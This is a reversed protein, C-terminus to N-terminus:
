NEGSDDKTEETIIVTVSKALRWAEIIIVSSADDAHTKGTAKLLEENGEWLGFENRIRRGIGHHLTILETEPMQAFRRRSETDLREVLTVAAEQVTRPLADKM